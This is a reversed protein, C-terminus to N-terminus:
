PKFEKVIFRYPHAQNRLPNKVIQHVRPPSDMKRILELCFNIDEPDARVGFLVDTLPSIYRTGGKVPDFEPESIIARFEYEYSWEHSKDMIIRLAAFNIEQDSAISNIHFHPAHTSYQVWRGTVSQRNIRKPFLAGSNIGVCIGKHEDGYHAWMAPNINISTFCKTAVGNIRDSVRRRFDSIAEGRGSVSYENENVDNYGAIGRFYFRGALTDGVYDRNISSYTWLTSPMQKPPYEGLM